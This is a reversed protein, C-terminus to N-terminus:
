RYYDREFVLVSECITNADQKACPAYVSVGLRHSVFGDATVELANDLKTLISRLQSVPIELLSEERLLPTSPTAFELAELHGDAAYYAFVGLDRFHDAPYNSTPTRKFSDYDVGAAQRVESPSMGFAFPGAGRLPDINYKM